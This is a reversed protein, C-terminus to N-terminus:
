VERSLIGIKVYPEPEAYLAMATHHKYFGLKRYFVEKGPVSTLFIKEFTMNNLLAKMMATGIGKRQYSPLVVVDFITAYYVGDSVVRAAGVLKGNDFAFVSLYSRQFAKRLDDPHRIGLPALEFVRALATWDVHQLDDTLIIPDM